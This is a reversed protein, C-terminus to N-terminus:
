ILEGAMAPREEVLRTVIQTYSEVAAEAQAKTFLRTDYQLKLKNGQVDKFVEFMIAYNVFMTVKSMAMVIWRMHDQEGQAPEFPQYLFLTKAAAQRREAGLAKYIDGLSVLGNETMKWFGNQTDRLLAPMGTSSRDLHSRFPLFNACTGNILQPDDMDVNRGTLLYDYAVDTHGSLRCLLLTYATQFVISPTVGVSQAYSAVDLNIKKVLVGGVKPNELQAPYNFASSRLHDKWFSLMRKRENDQNTYAVFSKFPVSKPLKRGDRLATFQDDFIRLLTGDYMAHDLKTCLDMTGDEYRLGLYRVFPKGIEFHQDWHHRIINDKDEEPSCDVMKLDLVPDRLIVQVWSLPDSEVQKMYMARLIQNAQTLKRTLDMWRGLVFDKPLRRVTMLQWFQDETHGQTLFEVQGPACPYIDEIDDAALGAAELRQYVSPDVVFGSLPDRTSSSKSAKLYQAQERLSPYSLADNVSLSWNQRRLISVLNIAGISDGGHSSFLDTASIEQGDMDFLEAWADRLISESESLETSDNGNVGNPTSVGSYKTIDGASLKEAITKLAKRNIKGSPLSPFAKFPLLIKPSMYHALSTLRELIVSPNIIAGMHLYKDGDDAKEAIKELVQQTEHPVYYAVITPKRQVTVLSVVCSKIMDGAHSLISNEIEGLEIRFGNLKIQNDKRGLCEIEGNPLWRAYDGTRYIVSGDEARIFSATTIDPRNLYGMAVQSGSACLEGVAGYPVPELREPHLISAKVAKLPYGISKLNGDPLVKSVTM